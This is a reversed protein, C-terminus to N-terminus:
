KLLVEVAHLTAQCGTVDEPQRIRKARYWSNALLRHLGATLQYYVSPVCQRRSLSPLFESRRFIAVLASLMIRIKCAHVITWARRKNYRTTRSYRLLDREDKRKLGRLFYFETLGWGEILFSIRKFIHRLELNTKHSNQVKFALNLFTVQPGMKM